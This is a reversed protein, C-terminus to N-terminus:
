DDNRGEALAALETELRDVYARKTFNEEYYFRARRGGAERLAPDEALERVAAALANVDGPNVAVGCGADEIIFRAGGSVAGVVPRGAAMYGQLKSPVTLGIETSDDLALLCVDAVAYWRVMEEFPYRGHFFVREGLGLRRVHERAHALESGDGVFHLRLGNVDELYAMADIMWGIGQVAGMNGMFVLNVGKHPELPVGGDEGAVDTAFHPFYVIRDKPIGHEREFYSAFSPSQIGIRDAEEYMHRCVRGFHRVIAGGRDGLAAKMSEPWLDCCYLFVPTGTRRGYKVAPVTMMAPSLQYAFVVDYRGELQMVSREASKWFSYYNLTRWLVGTRRGIEFSRRITVGNREQDRNRGHRYEEPVRGPEGGPVGVNPLGCLVTVDHGRAVLEECIATIQFQEPWYRQCVALIRM